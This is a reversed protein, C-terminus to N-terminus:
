CQRERFESCGGIAVQPNLAVPATVDAKDSPTIIQSMPVLVGACNLIFKAEYELLKM